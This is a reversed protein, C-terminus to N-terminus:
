GHSAGPKVWELYRRKYAILKRHTELPPMGLARKVAQVIERPKVTEYVPEDVYRQGPRMIKTLIPRKITM